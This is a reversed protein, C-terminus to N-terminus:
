IFSQDRHTSLLVSESVLKFQAKLTAWCVELYINFHTQVYALNLWIYGRIFAFHSFIVDGRETKLIAFHYNPFKILLCM